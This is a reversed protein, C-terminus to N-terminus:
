KGMLEKVRKANIEAIEKSLVISENEYKRALELDGDKRCQAAIADVKALLKTLEQRTNM